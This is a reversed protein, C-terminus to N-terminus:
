ANRLDEELEQRTPDMISVGFEKLRQLFAVRTLGALEAARGSSLRGMEYFKVAATLCLDHAFAEPSEKLSVLVADSCEVQITKM